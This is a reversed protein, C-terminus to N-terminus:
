ERPNNSTAQLMRCEKMGKVAAEAEARTKFYIEDDITPATSKQRHDVVACKNTATDLVVYYHAAEAAQAVSGAAACALAGLALKKMSARTNLLDSRVRSGHM